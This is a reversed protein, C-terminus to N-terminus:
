KSWKYQYINKNFFYLTEELLFAEFEIIKRECDYQWFNLLCVAKFINDTPLSSMAVLASNRM